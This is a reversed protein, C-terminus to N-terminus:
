TQRKIFLGFFYQTIMSLHYLGISVLFVLLQSHGWVNNHVLKFLSSTSISSPPFITHKHKAMECSECMLVNYKNKCINLFLIYM